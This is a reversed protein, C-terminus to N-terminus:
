KIKRIKAIFFGKVRCGENTIPKNIKM